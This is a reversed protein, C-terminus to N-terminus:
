SGAWRHHDDSALDLLLHNPMSANLSCVVGIIKSLNRRNLGLELVWLDLDQNYDVLGESTMEGLVENILAELRSEDSYEQMVPDWVNEKLESISCVV